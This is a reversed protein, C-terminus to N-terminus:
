LADAVSVTVPPAPLVGGVSVAIELRAIRGPSTSTMVFTALSASVGPENVKPRVLAGVPALMVVFVPTMVHAVDTDFAFVVFGNVTTTASLPEGLRVADCLKVTVTRPM